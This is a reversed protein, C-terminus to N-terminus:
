KDGGATYTKDWVARLPAPLEEVTRAGYAMLLETPPQLVPQDILPAPEIPTVEERFKALVLDITNNANWRGREEAEILRASYKNQEEAMDSYTESVFRLYESKNAAEKKNLQITWYLSVISGGLAFALIVTLVTIIGM